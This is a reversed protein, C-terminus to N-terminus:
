EFPDEETFGIIKSANVIVSPHEEEVFFEEHLSGLRLKCRRLLVFGEQKILFDSVRVGKRILLKGSVVGGDFICFVSHADHEDVRDLILDNETTPPVILTTAERQLAFFSIERDKGVFSLDTLKFFAHPTNLQDVFKAQRLVHFTATM